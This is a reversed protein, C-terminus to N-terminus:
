KLETNQVRPGLLHGWLGHDRESTCCTSLPHCGVRLWSTGTTWSGLPGGDKRRAQPQVPSSLCRPLPRAPQVHVAALVLLVMPVPPSQSVPREDRRSPGQVEAGALPPCLPPHAWHPGLKHKKCSFIANWFKIHSTWRRQHNSTERLAPLSSPAWTCHSTPGAQARQGLGALLPQQGSAM